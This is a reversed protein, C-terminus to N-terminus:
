LSDITITILSGFIQRLDEPTIPDARVGMWEKPPKPPQKQCEAAVIGAIDFIELVKTGFFDREKVHEPNVTLPASQTVFASAKMSCSKQDYGSVLEADTIMKGNQFHVRKYSPAGVTDSLASILAQDKFTFTIEHKKSLEEFSPPLPVPVPKTEEPAPPTSTPPTDSTEDSGCSSLILCVLIVSLLRM